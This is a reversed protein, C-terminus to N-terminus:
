PYIKASEFILEFDDIYLYSNSTTTGTERLMVAVTEDPYITDTISSFDINLFYHEGTNETIAVPAGLLRNVEGTSQGGQRRQAVLQFSFTETQNQSKKYWGSMSRIFSKEPLKFGRLDEPIDTPAEERSYRTNLQHYNAGYTTNFSYWGDRRLTWRGGSINRVFQRRSQSTPPMLTADAIDQLTAISDVVGVREFIERVKETAWPDHIATSCLVLLFFATPILYKFTPM